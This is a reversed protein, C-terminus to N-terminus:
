RNLDLRAHDDVFYRHEMAQEQTLWWHQRRDLHGDRRCLWWSRALDPRVAFTARIWNRDKTPLDDGRRVVFRAPYRFKRPHRRPRGRPRGTSTLIDM